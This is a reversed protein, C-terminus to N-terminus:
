AAEDLEYNAYVAVAGSANSAKVEIKLSTKFSCEVGRADYGAALAAMTPISTLLLSALAPYYYTTASAGTTFVFAVGDITIRINGAYAAACYALMGLLRGQGSVNLATVYDATTTTSLYVPAGALGRAKRYLSKM